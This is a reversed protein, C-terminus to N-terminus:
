RAASSLMISFCEYDAGSYPEIVERHELRQLPSAVLEATSDSRRRFRVRRGGVM